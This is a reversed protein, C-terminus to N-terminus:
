EEIRRIGNVASIYRSVKIQPPKPKIEEPDERLPRGLYDKVTDLCILVKRGTTVCPIVGCKVLRRLSHETIATNEDENKLERVTQPITRMRPLAM